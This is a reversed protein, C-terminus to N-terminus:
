DDSLSLLDANGGIAAVNVSVTKETCFRQLYNPGGAKPGTGSYGEGGFPQVGVVAGVMNRNVYINGIRANESIFAITEDIRSHIGLTLGYGLNNIDNVLAELKDAAYSMIHLIPGFQEGELEDLSKIEVLSPAVYHGHSSLGGPVATQYLLNQKYKEIYAQLKQQAERNIVPPIDTSFVAPNGISLEGMADILLNQIRDMIDEQVILVRLASCRQGASLFASSIVDKVVQEPLASSDVIMVNQGGTEAILPVIPFYNAALTRNINVATEFSGTFAVGSIKETNLVIESLQKGSCNLVALVSEPVGASYFMEAVRKAILRTDASPKALVTNGALLAAVIQGIYIALPFNWPSICVFVGRGHYSLFNDEGAPGPLQVPNLLLSEAQKAYYECFDIAERVEAIADKLTKGAEFICLAYLEDINKQLAQSFDKITDIRDQLSTKQWSNTASFVINLKREIDAENDAVVHGVVHTEDAPNIVTIGDSNNEYWCRHKFENISAEVSKLKALSGLNPGSSNKRDPYIDGPLPIGPHRISENEDLMDMPSQVIKEIAVSENEIRNVFSSNAGNELLRRVLYPLLDQYSGVPSYIRSPIEEIFQDHLNEGMGHLRQFEYQTNKGALHKITAITHANHTAFQPYFKETNNLLYIACAIYSVDTNSKRTFVPYDPLGQEQARKIETDWYAGKVLRVPIIKGSHGALASLWELVPMARKQYAQVALGLGNWKELSPDTILTQFIDLSLELRDAEEADLTVAVNNQCACQLLSLLAPTLEENVRNLQATEYRPHLASLKISISPADAVNEYQKETIVSAIKEIANKYASFYRAADKKSIASEGLMDYSFRYNNHFQKESRTLASAIDKGMVYQSAMVKMAQRLINRVMPEGVRSLLKIFQEALGKSTSNVIKGTLMLGWTSANVFLSHSNGLHTEFEALGLKSKILRDATADDPIRLLAEALCMLVVGEENSLSYEHIFAEVSGQSKKHKRVEEVLDRAYFEINQLDLPPINISSQLERFCEAEDKLYYDSIKQQLTSINEAFSM